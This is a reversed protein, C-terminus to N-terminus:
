TAGKVPRTAEVEVARKADCRRRFPGVRRGFASGRWGDRVHYRIVGGVYESGITLMVFDYNKARTATWRMRPIVAESGPATTM